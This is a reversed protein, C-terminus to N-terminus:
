RDNTCKLYLCFDKQSCDIGDYGEECSCADDMNNARVTIDENCKNHTGACIKNPRCPNGFSKM